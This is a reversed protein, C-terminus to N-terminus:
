FVKNVFLIRVLKKNLKPVEAKRHRYRTPNIESLRIEKKLNWFFFRISLFVIRGLFFFRFAALFSPYLLLSSVNMM